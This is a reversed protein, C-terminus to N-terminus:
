LIAAEGDPAGQREPYCCCKAVTNIPCYVLPALRRALNEGMRIMGNDAPHIMDPTLGAVDDLIDAGEFLHVNPQPCATVADRLKQRFEDPPAKGQAAADGVFDRFHPYITICAVPRAPDAGSVADIMYSVREYFEDPSFGGGIMNVSLALTAFDWDDRGAMYDALANECHASGGVGLNILDAGLRRATQGVYTLHPGSACAGHTISTGYALYRRSPLEDARPPRIGAGDIGHLQLRNGAFMVRFVQPAFAMDTPLGGVALVLREPTKVEITLAEAGIQYRETSQFGGYFVVAQAMGEPCSVTIRAPGESVFRIEACAPSLMREQARPNLQLRTGEPVRQLRVGEIGDEQRVEAINHLEVNEYIM